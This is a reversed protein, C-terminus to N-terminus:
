CRALLLPKESYHSMALERQLICKLSLQVKEEHRTNWDKYSPRMNPNPSSARVYGTQKLFYWSVAILLVQDKWFLCFGVHFSGRTLMWTRRAQEVHVSSPSEAARTISRGVCLYLESRQCLTLCWRTLRNQLHDRIRMSLLALSNM